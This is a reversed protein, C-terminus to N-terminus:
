EVVGSVEGFDLILGKYLGVTKGPPVAIPSSDRSKATWQQAGRNTLGWRSPDQPHPSVEAVPQQFDYNPFPTMHYPYLKTDHRIVVVNKGIRLIFPIPVRQQCKWCLLSAGQRSHVEDDYFNERGCHQCYAICDALHAFARRWETEGVRRNPKLGETFARIFLRKLFTPYVKWFEIANDHYGPVPRNSDDNPDFIFIPEYGFLKTMAQEDLCHIQLERKGELPHHVFLLYFLLVALSYKDTDASPEAEGRVIEPAMFRQTGIVGASAEGPISVNDNDCILIEGTNSDFFVNSFSIDRYCFGRNHLSWYCHALQRAVICVVQFSPHVDGRMMDVIGKFRPERLPMVYGFHKVSSSTVVMEPWLFENSNTPPGIDVLKRLIKEQQPTASGEFYWKLAKEKGQIVVRYVEGQGGSGLFADVVCRIGGPQLVITKGVPLLQNWM